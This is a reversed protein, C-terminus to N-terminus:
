AGDPKAFRTARFGVIGLALLFAGAVSWEMANSSARTAMETERVRRLEGKRDVEFVAPRDKPRDPVVYDGIVMGPKFTFKFQDESLPDLSYETMEFTWTLLPSGNSSRVIREARVPIVLGQENRRNEIRCESRGGVFAWREVALDMGPDLTAEVINGATSSLRLLIMGDSQEFARITAGSDRLSAFDARAGTLLLDLPHVDMRLPGSEQILVQKTRVFNTVQQRGNDVLELHTFQDRNNRPAVNFRITAREGGIAADKWWEFDGSVARQELIVRSLSRADVDDPSTADLKCTVAFHAHIRDLVHQQDAAAQVIRAVAEPTLEVLSVSSDSAAFVGRDAGSLGPFVGIVVVLAGHGIVSFVRSTM